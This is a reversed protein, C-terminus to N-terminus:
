QEKQEGRMALKKIFDAIAFINDPHFVPRYRERFVPWGPLEELEERLQLLVSYSRSELVATCVAELAVM